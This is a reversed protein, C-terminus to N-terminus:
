VRGYRAKLPNDPNKQNHLWAWMQDGLSFHWWEKPHRLFGAKTMVQNLIQRHRHYQREIIRTSTIYYNPNSRPSLEDIEGGMVVIEGTENLLTLDIASGTSHPPPTAPDTSPIAWLQYVKEWIDQRQQASITRDEWGYDKVLCQFTYDVMFQQVGIPRYADYIKLKWGPYSKDLLLQAVELSKLVGQRLCYPSKDEYEAGLKEYPHPLEVAFKELPICVLPEGCDEIPIDQYPKM